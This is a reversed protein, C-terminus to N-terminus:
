RASGIRRRDQFVLVWRRAQPRRQASDVGQPTPASRAQRGRAFRSRSVCKRAEGWQSAPARLCIPTRGRKWEVTLVEKTDPNENKLLQDPLRSCFARHLWAVYESSAPYAAPAQGSDILAQVEIHAVAEKQLNRKEPEEAYDHALARDIDRPHTHSGEIVNSYYCNVSRVLRGLSARAIPHTQGALASSKAVLDVILDNLDRSSWESPLMPEM